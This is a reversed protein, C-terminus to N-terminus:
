RGASLAQMSAIKNELLKCFKYMEAYTESRGIHMGKLYASQVRDAMLREKEGERGYLSMAGMFDARLGSLAACSDRCYKEGDM